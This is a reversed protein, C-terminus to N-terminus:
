CNKLRNLVLDYFDLTHRDTVPRGSQYFSIKFGNNSSLHATNAIRKLNNATGISGDYFKVDNGFLKKLINSFHIFHTCGLVVKSYDSLELESLERVLYDYVEDTDFHGKEAFEPLLPLGIMDVRHDMDVKDILEHLKKERVTVPTALVLIRGSNDDLVAPKIAPEIGVVPVELRNRLVEAAVSTATNCAILIIEAGKELLFEAAKVSFGIIEDNTKNGYPVNDTDAYYIYEEEPLIKMLHYLVSLGGIGSDFIGIKM